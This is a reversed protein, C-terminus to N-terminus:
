LSKCLKGTLWELIEKDSYDKPDKETIRVCVDDFYSQAVRGRKVAYNAKDLDLWILLTKFREGLHIFRETSIISGFLPMCPIQRSVKICSVMDEVLVISNCQNSLNGLIYYIKECAGRTYFRNGHLIGDNFQRGQYMLLNGNADFCPYILQSDNESWGIKNAIIEQNTIGYKKLWTIAIDPLNCTFDDPLNVHNKNYEKKKNDHHLKLNDGFTKLREVGNPAIYNGCGFCWKHGDDWVGLNDRSGCAPCPEHTIFHSM